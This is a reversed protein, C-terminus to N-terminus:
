HIMTRLWTLIMPVAPNPDADAIDLHSFDPFIKVTVRDRHTAVHELYFDTAGTSRVLGHGAGFILMPLRTDGVHTLSFYRSAFSDDPDLPAALAVDLLLRWPFYWETFDGGPRLIAEILERIPVRPRPESDAAPLHILSEGPAPQGSQLDLLGHLNIHAPDPVRTFVGVPQEVGVRVLTDPQMQDSLIGAVLAENTIRLGRAPRFPFYSRADPRLLAYVSVVDLLISDETRALKTSKTFPAIRKEPDPDTLREVGPIRGLVPVWFGHLYRDPTIRIPIWLPLGDIFLLGALDGAGIDTQSPQLPRPRPIPPTAGPVQAFDYGAYAAALIGGLSHGGLVVRANPYRSRVERVIARIDRLHVDLGWYAMYPIDQGKIKHFTHGEIELSGYYYGLAFDPHRYDLAADIGRRDQLLTSRAAVVWVQLEPGQVGVLARALIDGTNPGSNLGPVFVFVTRPAQPSPLAYRFALGRNLAAPTHPEAAGPVDILDRVVSSAGPPVGTQAAARRNGAPAALLCGLVFLAAVRQMTM